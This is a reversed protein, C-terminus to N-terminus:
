APNELPAALEAVIAPNLLTSIDGFDDSGETIKRLIRRMIKGSRTKPLDPAFRLVDPTAIAGINKRVAAILEAKLSDGSIFSDKLIVFAYIGQGKVPHPFGVVASEAVAPHSNLASEVEATGLRHGSVNIVDDVRGTIRYHGEADRSAGDGSFYFGPYAAFYTQVYREHDGHISRAQGPWSQAICLMGEGQGDIKQGNADMLQPAIGWFANMALGPKLWQTGPLPLILHGGTETQWWTDALACRGKGIKEFYWQWAEENIPEGVSGIVRLSALSAKALPADGLRMLSRIATPATYFSAVQHQDIIQWFRSADPYTPVGEFMLTTAGAALPGYVLYSHGTVWGIDGSCWYVEGERYDFAKEFTQQAYLLYGATTHRIGKPKGTSGSTYLLFLPAEAPMPVPRHTTSQASVCSHWDIDRAPNHPAEGALRLVLVTQVSPLGEIAADVNAKLPTLKGARRGNDATLILQSGSDELRGRLAEPSFGGFVVSHVAGIRACALMAFAAEPVMPMYLTVIDGPKVGLSVLANALKCTEDQLQQYTIIRTQGPEDGEWIIAPQAARQTLHRDICNEAVNLTGDAFWKVDTFDGSLVTTFPKHWHLTQAKEAWFATPDALSAAHDRQYDAESYLTHGFLPNAVPTM